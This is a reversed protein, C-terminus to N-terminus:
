RPAEQQAVQREALQRLIGVVRAIEKTDGIGKLAQKYVDLYRPNREETIAVAKRAHEVALEKRHEIPINSKMLAEAYSSHGEALDARWYANAPNVQNLAESLAIRQEFYGKAETPRKLEILVGAINACSFALARKIKRVIPRNEYKSVLQTRKDYAAKWKQLAAERHIASSKYDGREAENWSNDSDLNGLKHDIDAELARLEFNDGASDIGTIAHKADHLIDAARDLRQDNPVHLKRYVDASDIYTKALEAVFRADKVLGPHSNRLTELIRSSTVYVDEADHFSAPRIQTDSKAAVIPVNKATIAYLVDGKLRYAHSLLRQNEIDTTDSRKTLKKALDISEDAEHLARSALKALGETGPEGRVFLQEYAFHLYTQGQRVEPIADAEPNMKEYLAKAGDLLTLAPTGPLGVDEDVVTEVLKRAAREALRISDLARDKANDAANKADEAEKARAQAETKLRNATASALTANKYAALYSVFFAAAVIGLAAFGIAIRRTRVLQRKQREAETTAREAAGRAEAEAARAREEAEARELAAKEEAHRQDRAHVVLPALVDHTIELRQIRGRRESILLRRAVLNKLAQEPDPVRCSALVDRADEWAVPIRHGGARTVMHDEIYARIPNRYSEPFELFTEDYFRQLIDIGQSEVLEATIQALPPKTSLRAENLRECVLSILPPVAEIEELPATAPKQAVFRVIRAGVEDSVLNKGEMRGPRVVAELAQPGSLLRLAMRNRMLSPMTSKWEELQALYDERLSVVIRVPTPRFDYALAEQPSTAFKDSLAAPARNEVLDALQTFLEVVDAAREKPTSSEEQGLTFVEEFQDFILVPPSEELDPPRLQEHAAIEWLSRLPKWRLLFKWVTESQGKACAQALAARAQEVLSPSEASFELLLHIPRFREVRLKPILGARLLSTKGLGSQGYLVTLREERVRLFIDRIEATRGFFYQQNEETFSQLGLWPHDPDVQPGVTAAVSSVQPM